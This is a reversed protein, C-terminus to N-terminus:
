RVQNVLSAARTVVREGAKLGSTVAVNAGDLPEATVTRPEFREPATKVWVVTQNSPNKMLSAAPVSYGQLMSRSQVFVKLPQGVALRGLRDDEGRFMLPLAQERMSRGGGLFVLSVREQGVAISASAVDAAVDPDYALAEVRLRRPDVVEFVLERADVVQGALANSSAILGSVPAILADRQSLGGGVAAVRETLSTLESEATEIDKKPVTDALERLRLVRKEALTRAARLEALQASQNAREIQGSSPVVYALVDGKRVSQGISPFGQPGSELRGALVAQIKGGANPDMVVKGALEITRPLAGAEVLLTRVGFQHQAPKPLFVSGDPLRKPGNSNVVPTGDGHDHGDGAWAPAAAMALVISLASVLNRPSM